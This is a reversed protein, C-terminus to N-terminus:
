SVMMLTAPFIGSATRWSSWFSRRQYSWASVRVAAHATWAGVHVVPTVPYQLLEGRLDRGEGQHGIRVSQQQLLRKEFGDAPPSELYEQELVAHREAVGVLGPEPGARVSTFGGIEHDHDAALAVLERGKRVVQQARASLEGESQTLQKWAQAIRHDGREVAAMEGGKMARPYPM